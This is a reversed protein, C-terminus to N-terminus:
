RTSDQDLGARATALVTDIDTDPTAPSRKQAADLAASLAARQELVLKRVAALLAVAAQYMVFRSEGEFRKGLWPIHAARPAIQLSAIAVLRQGASESATLEPMLQEISLGLLKMKNVVTQMKATREPGQAMRARMGEYESSLDLAQSRVLAPPATAAFKKMDAAADIERDSPPPVALHAQISMSGKADEFRAKFQEQQVTNQSRQDAEAFAQTLYLRMAIYAGLFGCVPFYLLIAMAVSNDTTGLGHAIYAACAALDHPLDHLEVLGVGVIIKTLWDSVQELNTNLLLRYGFSRDGHLSEPGEPPGQGATQFVRPIGFLFGVLSGLALGVLAWLLALWREPVELAVVTLGGIVFAGIALLSWAALSLKKLLFEPLGSNTAM